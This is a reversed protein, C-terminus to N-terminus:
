PSTQAKRELIDSPLIRIEPAQLSKCGPQSFYETSKCGFIKAPLYPSTSYIITAFIHFVHMMTMVFSLGMAMFAATRMLMMVLM